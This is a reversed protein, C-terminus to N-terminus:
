RLAMRAHVGFCDLQLGPQAAAINLLLRVISMYLEREVDDPLVSVNIERSHLIGDVIPGFTAELQREDWELPGEERKAEARASAKAGDPPAETGGGGGVGDRGQEEHEDAHIRLAFRVELGLLTVRSSHLVDAVLRTAFRVVNVYMAHDVAASFVPQAGKAAQHAIREVLQPDLALTDDYELAAAASKRQEM